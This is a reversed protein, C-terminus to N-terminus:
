DGTQSCAAGRETKRGAEIRRLHHSGEITEDSKSKTTETTKANDKKVYYLEQYLV